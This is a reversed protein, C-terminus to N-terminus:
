ENQGKSASFLAGGLGFFFGTWLIGYLFVEGFDKASGPKWMYISAPSWDLAYFHPIMAWLLEIWTPGVGAIISLLPPLFTGAVLAGIGTVAGAGSSVAAGVGVALFCCALVPLYFLAGFQLNLVIGGWGGGWLWQSISLLFVSFVLCVLFPITCAISVGLMRPLDRVGMARYFLNAGRSVQLHGHRAGLAISYIGSLWTVLIAGQNMAMLSQHNEVSFLYPSALYFILVNALFLIWGVNAAIERLALRLTSTFFLWNM